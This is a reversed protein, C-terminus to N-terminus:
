RAAPPTTRHLPTSRASARSRADLHGDSPQGPRELVVHAHHLAFLAEGTAEDNGANAVILPVGAGHVMDRVAGLVGSSVIGAIM